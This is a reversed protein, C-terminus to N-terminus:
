LVYPKCEEDFIGVPEYELNLVLSLTSEFARWTWHQIVPGRVGALM